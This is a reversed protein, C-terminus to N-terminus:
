TSSLGLDVLVGSTEAASVASSLQSEGPDTDACPGSRRESDTYSTPEGCSNEDTVASFSVRNLYTSYQVGQVGLPISYFFPNTAVSKQGM